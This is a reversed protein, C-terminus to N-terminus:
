RLSGLTVVLDDTAHRCVVLAHSEGIERTSHTSMRTTLEFGSHTGVTCVDIQFIRGFQDVPDIVSDPAEM